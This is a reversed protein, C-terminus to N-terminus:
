FTSIVNVTGLWSSKRIDGGNLRIVLKSKRM